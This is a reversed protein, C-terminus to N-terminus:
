EGAPLPSSAEAGHLQRDCGQAVFGARTIELLYLEGFPQAKVGKKVVVLFPRAIQERAQAGGGLRGRADPEAGADNIGIRAMWGEQRLRGRCQGLERGPAETDHHSRAAM